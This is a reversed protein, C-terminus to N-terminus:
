LQPDPQAAPLEVGFRERLLQRWEEESGLERESREGDVTEILRLDNLTVRGDATAMSCIRERVCFSDPATQLWADSTAKETVISESHATRTKQSAASAEPQIASPTTPM